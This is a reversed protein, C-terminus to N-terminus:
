EAHVIFDVFWNGYEYKILSVDGNKSAFKWFLDLNEGLIYAYISRIVGGHTIILVNELDLKEISQIFKKVRAYFDVYSEGKPPAYEKWDESWCKWELPYLKELEKYTKGEFIGLDMENINNDIIFDKNHEIIINATQKARKSNSIYVKDFKINKLYEKAKKIQEIGKENLSSDLSGYYVKKNNSETEGHRLLYINM